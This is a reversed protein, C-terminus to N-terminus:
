VNWEAESSTEGKWPFSLPDRGVWGGAAAARPGYPKGVPAFGQPRGQECPERRRELGGRLCAGVVM